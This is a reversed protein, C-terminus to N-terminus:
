LRRISKNSPHPIFPTSTIRVVIRSIVHPGRAAHFGAASLAARRVTTPQEGVTGGLSLTTAYVDLATVLAHAEVRPALRRSLRRVLAAARANTKGTLDDSGAGIGFLKPLTAALWDGLAPSTPGGNFSQIRMQGDGSLWFAIGAPRSQQVTPAPLAVGPEVRAAVRATDTALANAGSSDTVQVSFTYTGADVYTHTGLVDFGGQGDAVVSTPSSYGDGWTITATFDSPSAGPKDDTFTAVVVDTFARGAVASVPQAVLNLPAPAITATTAETATTAMATYATVTSVVNPGSNVGGLAYIRGDPGMTAALSFLPSPLGAEQTWANTGPTYAYASSVPSVGSYGGVAYIRGDPGTTAALDSVPAPLDAVQAWTNMIPSYAYATDVAAGSSDEGGVAYILGDPGTTAGLDSLAVPLSAVTTWTNNSPAYAYVTSVPNASWNEGSNALGGIAYIRGDPGTTAALDSRADPLPAATTWTGTVPSYVYLTSQEGHPGIGGIAYIRGDPGTTAALNSLPVPLAAIPTWTATSPTYTDVTSVTDGGPEVGGIAYIRGDLGTTAALAARAAPLAAPAVTWADVAYYSSGGNFVTVVPAYTGAEAYPHPKSAWVNFGGAGNAAILVNGAATSSTEGDGWAITATYDGVAGGGLNYDGITALLVSAIPQGQVAAFSNPIVDLMAPAITIATIASATDPMYAAVTAVVESDFPPSFGGIAYIRGDPGTAAALLSTAGPANAVQTWTNSSPTYAYVVGYDDNNVAGLAYIRGDLGTTAALFIGPAPLSAVQSWTNTSPTYAYVTSVTNPFRVSGDNGGIAYIRGDPGTTAALNGTAVPLSAVQSWTNTAPTYAYVTSVPNNSGNLGGIAYIRGDPGTTATLNGIAVPLSAVQTWINTAPTYAYVTSVPNNSGDVGGIAYIRGDPGTTAALNALPQPLSAVQAWANTGPTYAYVTSIASIGGSIGGIAYIRGDPGTTAAQDALPIPLSAMQSWTGAEVVTVVAQATGQEAYPDPKSAYVDFGGAPDPAITVYGDATSSTEDDGWRVTATFDGATAAPNDDTFTAVRVSTVQQSISGKDQLYAVQVGEPAMQNGTYPSGNASIGSGGNGTAPSFTWPTGAPDPEFNGAGLSPAEFGPDAITPATGGGMPVVTVDDIFVTNDGGATDLGQFTITHWVTGDLGIPNTTYTQFATGTPTFTGISGGDVQVEFDESSVGNNARQAAEFSIEYTGDQWTTFPQNVVATVPQALVQLPSGAATGAPSALLRRDELPECQPRWRAGRARGAPLRQFRGFPSWRTQIM